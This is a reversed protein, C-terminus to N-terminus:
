LFRRADSQRSIECRPLRRRLAAIAPESIRDPLLLRRLSTLEGMCELARDSIRTDRLDLYVLGSSGEISRFEEDTLELQRLSLAQLDGAVLSGLAALRHATDRTPVLMLDRQAPVSVDGVASGFEQWQWIGLGWPRVFLLGLSGDKPFRLVREPPPTDPVDDPELSVAAVGDPIGFRESLLARIREALDSVRHRAHVKSAANAGMRRRLVDDELLEVVSHALSTPDFEAATAGCDDEIFERAGGSPEFAVIPTSCAAAELVVLPFPDDRSSLVFVDMANFYPYPNDRLGLYTVHNSLDREAIAADFADADPGAGVWLFHLPTDRHRRLELTRQAVELFLDWGKRKDLRGVSGVLLAAESLGLERRVEDPTLATAKSRIEEVDVSEHLVEIRSDELGHNEVLNRKVAHACAVYLNPDELFARRREDDISKLYWELEHVHVVLPCSLGLARTVDGNTATNAYILDPAWSEVEAVIRDRHDPGGGEKPFFIETPAEKAFAQVLTGNPERLLVRLDWGFRRRIERIVSLLLV